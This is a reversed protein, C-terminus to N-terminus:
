PTSKIAGNKHFRGQEIMLVDALSFHPTQDHRYVDECSYQRDHQEQAYRSM